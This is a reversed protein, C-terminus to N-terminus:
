WMSSQTEHEYMQDIKKKYQEMITHRKIKMTPTMEGGPLTFDKPAIMFKHVKQANSIARRNVKQIQAMIELRVEENDEAILDTVTESEAGLNEAWEIVDPHLDNTPLNNEDLVTRLTIICALHKRQDGLVMCNSVIDKMQLKINDEIPVPAVNEGGGTVIIEKQRGGITLFKDEDYRGLDGSLVYGQGNILEATKGEEWLYGM